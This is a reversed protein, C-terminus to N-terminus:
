ASSGNISVTLIINVFGKNKLRDLFPYDFRFVPEIVAITPIAVFVELPMIEGELVTQCIVQHKVSAYGDIM